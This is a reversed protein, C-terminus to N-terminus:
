ILNQFIGHSEMSINILNWSKEMVLLNESFEPISILNWSKGHSELYRTFGSIYDSFHIMFHIWRYLSSVARSNLDDSSVILRPLEPYCNVGTLFDYNLLIEYVITVQSPSYHYPITTNYLSLIM